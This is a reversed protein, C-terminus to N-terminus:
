ADVLLQTITSIDCTREKIECLASPILHYFWFGRELQLHSCSNIVIAGGPRLVRALEAFVARHAQWDNANSDSLHHLVQNIIVGDM